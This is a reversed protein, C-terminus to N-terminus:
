VPSAPARHSRGTGPRDEYRKGQPGTTRRGTQREKDEPEEAEAEGPEPEEAEAEGPEPEEAEAEGPAPEEAEAVGPEPEESIEEETAPDESGVEEAPLIGEGSQQETETQVTDDVAYTTTGTHLSAAILALALLLTLIRRKIDKM